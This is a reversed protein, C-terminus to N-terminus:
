PEARLVPDSCRPDPLGATAVPGHDRTRCDFRNGTLGLEKWVDARMLKSGTEVDSIHRSFFVNTVLNVLKNGIVFWFSCSSHSAFGRVRYV